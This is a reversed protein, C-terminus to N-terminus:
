RYIIPTIKVTDDTIEKQWDIGFSLCSESGDELTNSGQGDNILAGYPAASYWIIAM